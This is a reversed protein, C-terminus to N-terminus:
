QRRLYCNPIYREKVYSHQCERHHRRVVVRHQNAVRMDNPVFHVRDRNFIERGDTPQRTLRPHVCPGGVWGRWLQGGEAVRVAFHALLAECIRGGYLWLRGGGDARGDHGAQQLVRNRRPPPPPRAEGCGHELKDGPAPGPVQYATERRMRTARKGM